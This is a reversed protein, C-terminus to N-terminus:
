VRDRALAKTLPDALNDGSKIYNVNIIGNNMYSRVTSHKRRIPRSKSNYYRNNVRGIAATSDCHILIPPISKEWYSIENLLDRLLNAEESATALAILEAEMTSNAIITQKKSKWSIAGCCNTSNIVTIIITFRSRDSSFM